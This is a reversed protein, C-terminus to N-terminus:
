PSEVREKLGRVVGGMLQETGKKLLPGPVYFGLDTDLRYVAHTRAGGDLPEFRFEGDGKKVSGEVLKWAMRGPPDYEYRVTYRITKVVADASFEVLSGRGEADREHVTASKIAPQWDPWTEFALLADFCAQPPADIEIEREARQESM